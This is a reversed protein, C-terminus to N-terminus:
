FAGNGIGTVPMGDIEAPIEVTEAEKDCGTITIQGDNVTYTLQGYTQAEEAYVATDTVPLCPVAAGLM